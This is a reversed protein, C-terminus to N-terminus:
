PNALNQARRRIRDAESEQNPAHAQRRQEAGEAGALKTGGSKKWKSVDHVSKAINLTSSVLGLALSVDKIVNRVKEAKAENIRNQYEFDETEREETLKKYDQEAKMRDNQDKLDWTEMNKVEQGKIQARQIADAKSGAKEGIPTYDRDGYLHYGRKMGKVGAHLADLSSYREYAALFDTM